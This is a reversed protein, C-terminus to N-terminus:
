YGRPLGLRLCTLTNPATLSSDRAVATGNALREVGEEPDWTPLDGPSLSHAGSQFGGIIFTHGAVRASLRDALAPAFARGPAAGFASCCRVWFLADNSLEARFADISDALPSRKTLAELDLRSQGLGMYGWGGHGWIQLEGIRRGRERAISTAWSLAQTWSSAGTTAHAHRVVRHMVAGLRWWRTLGGTGHATGDDRREVRPVLPGRRVDTEDFVVLRLDRAGGSV